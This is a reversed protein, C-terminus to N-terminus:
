RGLATRTQRPGVVIHMNWDELARSFALSAAVQLLALNFPWQTEGKSMLMIMGGFMISLLMTQQLKTTFIRLAKWATSPYERMPAVRSGGMFSWDESIVDSSIMQKLESRREELLVDLKRLARFDLATMALYFVASSAIGLLHEPEVTGLSVKVYGYILLPLVTGLALDVRAARRLLRPALLAVENFTAQYQKVAQPSPHEVKLLSQTLLRPMSGDLNAIRRCLINNM